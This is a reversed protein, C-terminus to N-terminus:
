KRRYLPLLKKAHLFSEGECLVTYRGAGMGPNLAKIAGLLRGGKVAGVWEHQNTKHPPHCFVLSQGFESLGDSRPIARSMRMAQLRQFIEKAESGVWADQEERAILSDKSLTRLRFEFCSEVM